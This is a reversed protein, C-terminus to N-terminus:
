PELNIWMAPRVAERSYVYVGRYDDASGDNDIALARSQISGTTRLWQRCTAEGSVTKYTSSTEVGRAKAFPTVGCLRAENSTFLRNAETISLLFVKDNTAEGPDISYRPNNDASLTSSCILEQCMGNFAFNLFEDNMWNRLSCEEWTVDTDFSNYPQCDLAYKSILLAKNGEIDLVIWTIEEKGNSLNDDQEYLGFKVSDGVKAGSLNDIQIYSICEIAKDKSDKVSLSHFVAYAEKYKGANYLNMASNYKVFPIIVRVCLVLLLVSACVSPIVIGIIKKRKQDAKQTSIRSNVDEQGTTLREAEQGTKIEEIMKQCVLIQDDVDKWGAIKRFTDIAAEYAPVQRLHMQRKACSYLVNKRCIEANDLCQEALLDADRYGSLGSLAEAVSKYAGESDANQMLVVAEYYKSSLRAEENRENISSIYGKLVEAMETDAFRLAKKYNNKDDFPQECEQLVDQTPVRLEAMLAGLYANANSIDIDLIRNSYEAASTYDEDELFMFMRQVLNNIGAVNAETRHANYTVNEKGLLKDIGRTLDQLYGLKGCDQSQYAKFQDPMDYPDMNRYCPILIRTKDKAMLKIFRSWENKVWVANMYEYDTGVVLMMKASNLASFIYPEYQVGLKDELSIRSFFVRYGKVYLADYIEQALVSDPTRKGYSDTEKYCIFIDYPKEDRSLAIIEGMIRDIEAAQEEYLLRSTMDANEIALEYNEDKRMKDFSARHCTPVKNGTAPDDVYEIGYNALCLGWYAEAENPYEAIIQEYLNAAKDFECSMRLRNARNFLNTKKEDDTNPVTQKSGCYECEVVKEFGTILLDGGCMKCKFITM